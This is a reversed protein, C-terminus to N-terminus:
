CSWLTIVTLTSQFGLLLIDKLDGPAFTLRLDRFCLPSTGISVWFLIITKTAARPNGPRPIFQERGRREQRKINTLTSSSVIWVLRPLFSLLAVQLDALALPREFHSV